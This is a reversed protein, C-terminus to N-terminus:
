LPVFASNLPHYDLIQQHGSTLTSRGGNSKSVLADHKVGSSDGTRTSTAKNLYKKEKGNNNSDDAGSAWM